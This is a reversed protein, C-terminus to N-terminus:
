LIWKNSSINLWICSFVHSDDCGSSMKGFSAKTFWMLWQLSVVHINVTDFSRRGFFNYLSTCSLEKPCFGEVELWPVNGVMKFTTYCSLWALLCGLIVKHEVQLFFVRTLFIPKMMNNELCLFFESENTHIHYSHWFWCGLM